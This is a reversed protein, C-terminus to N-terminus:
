KLKSKLFLLNKHYADIFRDNYKKYDEQPIFERSRACKSTSYISDKKYAYILWTQNLDFELGCGDDSKPTKVKLNKIELGPKYNESVKFIAYTGDSEERKYIVKGKIIVDTGNYEIDKLLTPKQVCTCSALVIFTVIWFLAVVFIKIHLLSLKKKSKLKLTGLVAKFKGQLTRVHLM